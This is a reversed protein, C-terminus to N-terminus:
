VITILVTTERHESLIIRVVGIIELTILRGSLTGKISLVNAWLDVLVGHRHEITRFEWSCARRLYVNDAGDSIV